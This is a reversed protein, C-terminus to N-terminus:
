EGGVRPQYYHSVRQGPDVFGPWNWERAEDTAEVHVDPRDLVEAKLRTGLGPGEPAMLFGDRVVINPEVFKGYWGRYYARNTEQIMVNPCSMSIHACAFVNVPGTWDHPAVPTQYTEALTAIKKTETVGGTWILDPMVIEAAGREIFERFHWKSILREAACIPTTTAQALKLHTEVNVPRIMEEQWLIDYEEMARVIRMAPALDWQGGGDHAIEIQDGLAKRQKALPELAERLDKGAIFHGGGSVAAYPALYYAKAATIGEDLLSQLWGVPDRQEFENDQIDGYSGITNYVRVRDRCQGGLMNYIPEGAAQGALDWLAIDLASLARFEAGAYGFGEAMGFMDSWLKERDMPNKGILLPGFIEHIVSAVARPLYWTEGLGILGNDTHIRVWLVHWFEDVHITEVKTIKM